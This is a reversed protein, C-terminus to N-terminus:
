FPYISSQPIPPAIINDYQYLLTNNLQVEQPTMLVDDMSNDNSMSNDKSRSVDTMNIDNSSESHSPLNNQRELLHLYPIENSREIRKQKLPAFSSRTRSLNQSNSFSSTSNSIPKSIPIPTPTRTRSSLQISSQSSNLNNNTPRIPLYKDYSENKKKIPGYSM